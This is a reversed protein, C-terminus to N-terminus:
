QTRPYGALRVRLDQVVPAQAPAIWGILAQLGVVLIRRCSPSLILVAIGIGACFGGLWSGTCALLLWPVTIFCESSQWFRLERFLDLVWPSMCAQDSIKLVFHEHQLPYLCIHMHATYTHMYIYIYLAYVLM